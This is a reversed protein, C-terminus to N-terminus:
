FEQDTLELIEVTDSDPQSVQKAEESHPKEQRKTEKGKLQRVILKKTSLQVHYIPYFYFLNVPIVSVQGPTMRHKSNTTATPALSKM